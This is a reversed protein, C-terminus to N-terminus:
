PTTHREVFAKILERQESESANSLEISDKGITVKAGRLPRHDLWSEVVKLVAPLVATSATVVLAGLSIPDVAKAGTPTEGGRAPEVSQVNLELLRRRLGATLDVIEIDDTSDNGDLSLM